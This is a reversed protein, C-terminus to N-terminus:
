KKEAQKVKQWCSELEEINMDKLKRNDKELFSELQRFRREFKSNSARLCSEAELKLHRSINVCTFLIDGLEEKMNQVNQNQMAAELEAIEEKLKIIVQRAESWDFGSDAARKQLKRARLLAPLALPIDDLTGPASQNTEADGQKWKEKLRSRREETKIQEWNIEVQEAEINSKSGFSEITAKPFVHPHRNILKESIETVIDEFDFLGTEKGLQAFFVVQFLLDGLENKLHSYDHNEIADIVEYIEELTHPAISQFNQKLDWPCGYEKDRLMAM